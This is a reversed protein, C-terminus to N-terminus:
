FLSMIEKMTGNFVNRRKAEDLIACFTNWYNPNTLYNPHFNLTLCGGVKEVEDMMLLSRQIAHEQNLELSNAKFLAGDMIIMPLETVGLANCHEDTLQYPYSTGARFGITRNFGLTSDYLLGANQITSPTKHIDFKLWHQRSSVVEEQIVESLGENQKRMMDANNHTEYSGHLGIEFGSQHMEKIMDTVKCTTNRYTVRDSLRYDCDVFNLNSFSPRNFYFFTSKFGHKDIEDIWKDYLFTEKKAPNIGKLIGFATEFPLLIKEQLSNSFKLTKWIRRNIEPFSHDVIFDVDHSICLAFKKNDPWIQKQKVGHQTLINLIYNDLYAEQYPYQTFPFEWNGWSDRMSNNREENRFLCNSIYQINTENFIHLASTDVFHLLFKEVVSHM